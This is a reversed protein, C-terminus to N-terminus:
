VQDVTAVFSALKFQMPKRLINPKKPRGFDRIGKSSSVELDLHRQFTALRLSAKSLSGGSLRSIPIKVVIITITTKEVQVWLVDAVEPRQYGGHRDMLEAIVQNHQHHCSQHHHHHHRHHSQNHIQHHHYHAM